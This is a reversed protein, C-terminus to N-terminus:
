ARTELAEATRWMRADTSHLDFEHGAVAIRAHARGGREAIRTIACSAGFNAVLQWSAGGDLSELVRGDTTGRLIRGLAAAEVVRSSTLAGHPALSLAVLSLGAATAAKLLDRRNM